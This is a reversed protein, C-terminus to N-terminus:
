SAFLFRASLAIADCHCAISICSAFNNICCISTSCSKGNNKRKEKQKPSYQQLLNSCNKNMTILLSFKSADSKFRQAREARKVPRAKAVRTRTNHAGSTVGGCLVM